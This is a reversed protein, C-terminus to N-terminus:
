LNPEPEPRLLPTVCAPRHQVGFHVCLIPDQWLHLLYEAIDHCCAHKMQKCFTEGLDLERLIIVSLPKKDRGPRALRIPTGPKIQELRHVVSAAVPVVIKERAKTILPVYGLVRLSAPKEDCHCPIKGDSMFRRCPKSSRGDWHCAVDYVRGALVGDIHEDKKVKVCEWCLEPPLPALVPKPFM